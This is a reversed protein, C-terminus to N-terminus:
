GASEVSGQRPLKLIHGQLPPQVTFSSLFPVLSTLIAPFAESKHLLPQLQLRYAGEARRLNVFCTSAGVLSRAGEETAKKQYAGYSVIIVLVLHGSYVYQSKSM